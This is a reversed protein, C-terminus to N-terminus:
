EAKIMRKNNMFLGISIFIYFLTNLVDHISWIYNVNKHSSIIERFAFLFYTSPAYVLIGMCFWFVPKLEIQFVSDSKYAEYFYILVWIVQIFSNLCVLESFFRANFSETISLYFLCFLFFGFFVIIQYKVKNHINYFFILAWIFADAITYSNYLVSMWSKEIEFASALQPVSALLLLCIMLKDTLGRRKLYVFGVVLPILVAYVSAQHIINFITM